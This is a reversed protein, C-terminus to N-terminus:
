GGVVSVGNFEGSSSNSQMNAEISLNGNETQIRAGTNIVVNRSVKIIAEGNGSLNVNGNFTVRDTGPVPADNQLDLDLSANNNFTINGEFNIQDNGTGGNITLNPMFTFASINIIDNGGAANIIVSTIDVNSID